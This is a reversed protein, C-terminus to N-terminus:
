LGTVDLTGEFVLGTDNNIAKVISNIKNADIIANARKQAIIEAQTDAQAKLGNVFTQKAVAGTPIPSPVPVVVEFEYYQPLLGGNGDPVDSLLPAGTEDTLPFNLERYLIKLFIASGSVLDPINAKKRKLKIDTVAM